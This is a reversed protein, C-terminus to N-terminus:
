FTFTGKVVSETSAPSQIRLRPDSPTQAAFTGCTNTQEIPGMGGPACGLVSCEYGGPQGILTTPVMFPGRIHVNTSYEGQANLTMSGLPLPGAGWAKNRQPGGAHTYGKPLVEDAPKIQGNAGVKGIRCEVKVAEIAWHLKSLTVPITFQFIVEQYQAPQQANSVAPLLLFMGVLLRIRNTM